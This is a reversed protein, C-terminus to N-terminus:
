EHWYDLWLHLGTLTIRVFRLSIEDSDLIESRLQQQLVEELLRALTSKGSGPLGTFWV